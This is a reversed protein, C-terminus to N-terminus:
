EPSEVSVVFGHEWGSPMVCIRGDLLIDVEATYDFERELAERVLDMVEVPLAKHLPDWVWSDYCEREGTPCYRGHCGDGDIYVWGWRLRQDHTKCTSSHHRM